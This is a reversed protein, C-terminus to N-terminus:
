RPVLRLLAVGLAALALRAVWGFGIWTWAENARRSRGKAEQVAPIVTTALVALEAPDRQALIERAADVAAPRYDQPANVVRLLDESSWRAYQAKLDAFDQNAAM